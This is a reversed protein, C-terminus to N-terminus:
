EHFRKKYQSITQGFHCRFASRFYKVDSFGCREAIETQTFYGAELLSLARAFRLNELYQKPSVDFAAKFRRRFYAESMYFHSALASISFSPDAVANEMQRAASHIPDAHDGDASARERAIDALITYFLASTRYECDAGKQEYCSLISEFLTRYREPHEPHFIRIDRGADGPMHFHIVIIREQAGLVSYALGPPVYAIDGTRTKIKKGNTQFFGDSELRFSLAHFSRAATLTKGEQRDYRLVDIIDAHLLKNIM